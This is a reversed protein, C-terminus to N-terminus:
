WTGTMSTNKNMRLSVSILTAPQQRIWLIQDTIPCGCFSSWTWPTFCALQFPRGTCSQIIIYPTVGNSRPRNWPTQLLCRFLRDGTHCLGTCPKYGVLLAILHSREGRKICNLTISIGDNGIYHCWQAVKLNELSLKYILYPLFLKIYKKELIMKRLM